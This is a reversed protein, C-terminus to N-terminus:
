KTHFSRYSEVFVSCLILIGGLIVNWGPVESLFIAGLIIGYIPQTSSIISATTISFNRFSMLFLTHGIATTVLALLLVFPWETTLGSFDIFFWTPILLVSVVVLQYGMLVSGGYVSVVKKSIINRLAYCFASFLGFGVAQLYTNEFDFEPILLYIGGLVLVGLFLHTKQFKTKLILPELLATIVPYTFISLMGIAVTSLKLAYFYTVWHIGMLLGSGYVIARDKSSISLSFGKWKCFMFLFLAGLTARAAIIIPVPLNIYRGLPGSTAILLIAFNLELIDRLYSTPIKQQM